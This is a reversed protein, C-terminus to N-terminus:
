NVDPLGAGLQEDLIGVHFAWENTGGDKAYTVSPRKAFAAKKASISDGRTVDNITITNQGHNGAGATQFNYLADLQANVPSTKLYRLTVTGPKGAHLSHMVEGGAGITMSNKDESAEVTIGEEAAGADSGLSFAGGPGSISIQVDLFSYTGM